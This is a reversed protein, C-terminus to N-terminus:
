AFSASVSMVNLRYFLGELFRGSTVLPWLPASTLSIVQVTENGRELWDYFDIQQQLTLTSVDGILLTRADDAPLDLPGPLFYVHPTHVCLGAMVEFAPGTGVDLCQVLV